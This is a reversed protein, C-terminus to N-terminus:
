SRARGSMCVYVMPILFVPITCMAALQLHSQGLLGVLPQLIAIGLTSLLSVVSMASAREDPDVRAYVKGCFANMALGHACVSVFFAVILLVDNGCWATVAICVADILLYSVLRAPTSGFRRGLRGAAATGGNMAILGILQLWMTSYDDGLLLPWLMAISMAGIDLAVVMWCEPVRIGGMVSRWMDRLLTRLTVAGASRDAAVTMDPMRLLTVIALLYAAGAGVWILSPAIAYLAAGVVGGAIVSLGIAEGLEALKTETRSSTGSRREREEQEAVYLASAAGTETSSGFGTLLEGAVVMWFNSSDILFCVFGTLRAAAGLVMIKKGSWKDFLVSTPLECIVSMVDFLSNAVAILALSLGAQRFAIVYYALFCGQGFYVLANYRKALM